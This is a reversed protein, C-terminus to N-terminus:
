LITQNQQKHTYVMHDKSTTMFNPCTVEKDSNQSIDSSVVDKVAKYFWSGFWGMKPIKKKGVVSGVCNSGM